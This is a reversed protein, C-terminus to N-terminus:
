FNNIFYNYSEENLNENFKYTLKHIFASNLIFNMKNRDLNNYFLKQFNYCNLDDLPLINNWESSFHRTVMNFVFYSYFYHPTGKNKLTLYILTKYTLDIIKNNAESILFWSQFNIIEKNDFGSKFCFLSSNTLELPIEKSLYCTADLYTGGYKSLLGYRILDSFYVMSIKKNNYLDYIEQPLSLYDKLNSLTILILNDKFILKAREYCKKIVIPMNEEGQFWIMWVYNSKHSKDLNDNKFKEIAKNIKRKQRNFCIEMQLKGITYKSLLNLKYLTYFLFSGLLCRNKLANQLYENKM